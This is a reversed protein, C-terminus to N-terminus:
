LKPRPLQTSVKKGDNRQDAGAAYERHVIIELVRRSVTKRWETWMTVGSEGRRVNAWKIIDEIGSLQRFQDSRIKDRLTKGRIARIINM